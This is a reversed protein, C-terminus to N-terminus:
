GGHHHEKTLRGSWLAPHKAGKSRNCPMCLIQLNTKDNGGGLALPIVHDVEFKVLFLDCAACQNKQSALIEAIDAATHTGAAGARRSRASRGWAKVKEPNRKAWDRLGANIQDRKEIRRKAFYERVHKKNAIVWEAHKQRISEKNKQRFRKSKASAKEKNQAHWQRSKAKACDKCIAALGDRKGKDAHFNEATGMKPTACHKCEKLNAEQVAM